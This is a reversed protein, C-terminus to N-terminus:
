RFHLAGPALDRQGRWRAKSEKERNECRARQCRQTPSPWVKAKQRGLGGVVAWM